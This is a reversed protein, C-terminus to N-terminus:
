NRYICLLQAIPLPVFTAIPNKKSHSDINPRTITEAVFVGTARVYVYMDVYIYVYM